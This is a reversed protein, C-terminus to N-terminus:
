LSKVPLYNKGFYLGNGQFGHDRAWNVLAKETHIGLWRYLNKLHTKLTEFDIHLDDAIHKRSREIILLAIIQVERFTLGHKNKLPSKRKRKKM